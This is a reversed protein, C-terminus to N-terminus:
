YWSEGTNTSARRILAEREAVASAVLGNLFPDAPAENLAARGARVMYELAAIRAAPDPPAEGGEAEVLQRYQVWADMYQREALRVAEAAEDASEYQSSAQLFPGDSGRTGGLPSSDSVTAAGAAAGLFFVVAAAAARMWGTTHALARLRGGGEMLGESVLRAELIAWDGPPPRLDPLGGLAETQRRYARLDDACVECAELHRREDPSPKEDVLQALREPTVHEM